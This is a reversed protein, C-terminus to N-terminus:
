EAFLQHIISLENAAATRIQQELESTLMTFTAVDEAHVSAQKLNHELQCLLQHLDTLGVTGSTGKLTHVIALMQAWDQQTIARQLDILQQALNSEFSQLIRQFFQENDAFRQLLNARTKIIRPQSPLDAEASNIAQEMVIRKHRNIPLKNLNNSNAAAPSRGTYQLLTSIVADIDFPKTLHANMGAQLCAAQDAAYVNATMAIIPLDSFRGDARIRRTAELGDINPMQVDMLVADYGQEPTSSQLVANVGELGGTAIDVIAGENQLLEKAVFQNIENDEVLLLRLGKLQKTRKSPKVRTNLAPQKGALVSAILEVLQKPTVPKTLMAAYPIQRDQPLTCLAERGKATVLMIIPPLAHDTSTNLQKLTSLESLDPLPYDLLLAQISQQQAYCGTLEAKAAILSAATLVKAGHQSVAQSLLTLASPNDDIILINTDKEFTTAEALARDTDLALDIDFWFHSGEGLASKLQLEGGMMQVMNKSIVLGLGSGGYQRTTSAEAQTFGDFIRQQQAPSIGIGTDIVSFRIRCARDQAHVQQLQIIVEGQHTFKIANSALNILIQQLRLKDGIIWQPLEPDIDFLLEVTKTALNHALVVALERMLEDLNFPHQELELKGAEIKSYDLIDNILHLLSEAAIQANSTYDDQQMSLETTKMLQLMGLIANMPTRIEHSMNALFLSKAANADEAAAKSERLYQELEHTATIDSNVGIVRIARGKEDRQVYAGAQIYRTKGSPLILRFTLTYEGIGAVANHLSSLTFARDEPHVRSEWHAYNLGQERLTIPQEYLQYMKDNWQLVDDSISWEWIGLQAVEYALTLQETKSLLQKQISLLAAQQQKQQTIDTSICLYGVVQAQVNRMTTVVMTIPFRQGDKRIYHWEGKDVGTLNSTYILTQFGSIHTNHIKSLATAHSAIETQDHFLLPTTQGIVESAQYGLLREAGHNFLQIEGSTDTAIIAFESAASLVNKFLLNIKALDATRQEVQTELDANLQQIKAEAAKQKSIDRVVKSVGIVRGESSRVPSFTVSVDISKGNKHQRVVEVNPIYEGQAARKFFALDADIDAPRVILKNLTKGIAEDAKFGFIATAGQNWSTINGDITHGIIGDASSHVIAALKAQEAQLLRKHTLNINILGTLLALLFSLMSGIIGLQSPSPLRLEAIFQPTVSYDFQWTRGYVQHTERIPYLGIQNHTTNKFFLDPKEPDTIDTLHLIVQQSDISKDVLVESMLLAAYSWGFALEEREAVTKPTVAGRYMPMMILFSQQPQGTAQVLTIPGTLRVEGSQMSSLAAQYRNHESAIDLGIAALNRDVPEIYQIVYREGIHPTLEKISFSPWGDAQAAALFAAEQQRPVRRIFGFGRAGPFESDVDRTQSYRLFLDRSIKEEDITILAGRAGRLGYQYLQFRTLIDQAKQQLSAKAATHIRSQNTQHVKYSLTISM